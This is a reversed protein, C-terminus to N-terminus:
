IGLGATLLIFFSVVAFFATIKLIRQPSLKGKFYHLFLDIVLFHVALVMSVSGAVSLPLFEAIWLMQASFIAFLLAAINLSEEPVVNREARFVGERAFAIWLIDKILAYAAGLVFVWRWFSPFVDKSFFFTLLSVTLLFSNLIIWHNRYKAFSLTKVGFLIYFAAGFVLIWLPGPAIGSLFPISFASLFVLFAFSRLIRSGGHPAAHRYLIVAAASFIFFSFVRLGGSGGLSALLISVAAAKFASGFPRDRFLSGSKTEM